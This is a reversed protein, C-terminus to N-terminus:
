RAGILIVNVKGSSLVKRGSRTSEGRSKGSFATYLVRAIISARNQDTVRNLRPFARTFPLVASIQMMMEPIHLNPQLLIHQPSDCQRCRHTGGRPSSDHCRIDISISQEPRAPERGKEKVM